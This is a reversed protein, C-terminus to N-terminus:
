LTGNGFVQKVSDDDFQKSLYELIPSIAYTKRRKNQTLKLKMLSTDIMPNPHREINALALFNEKNERIELCQLFHSVTRRPIDLEEGIKTHTESHSRGEIQGKEYDMLEERNAM